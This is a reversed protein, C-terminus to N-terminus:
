YRLSASIRPQRPAADILVDIPETTSDQAHPEIASRTFSVPDWGPRAAGGVSLFQYARRLHHDAIAIVDPAADAINASFVKAWAERLWYVDGRLGIEIRTGSAAFSQRYIPQPGALHDFLLLAAIRDDPWVSAHLAYELWPARTAPANRVLLVLWRTLWGPRSSTQRQLNRAIASWLVPGIRGGAESVLALAQDSLQENTVYYDAFWAALSASGSGTVNGDASDFLRRFEPRESAWSLWQPGRAFEAFFRATAESALITELYSREDPIQSPPGALLDSVRQRHDLLGMSAWSAWRTIVETLQSHTGDPNSYAIPQIRLRRWHPLDPQNTLMYRVSDPGLGRGLYSMVVDQHSYGVFLVTYHRFMRELFRTAWADRLYAQGFDADTVLLRRVPGKLSGHLYVIGNFDDGLPLSPAIDTTFSEGLAQLAESLHLDYNTTVIRIQPGSAALTAIAVHLANPRSEEAGIIDAVRRHVDVGHRDDLDGMLIDTRDLEENTVHVYSDSAIDGALQRFSPLNSPPAVSAGAGVFIVLRDERQAEILKWPLDVEAIWM